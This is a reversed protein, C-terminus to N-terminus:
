GQWQRIVLSEGLSYFGLRLDAKGLVLHLISLASVSPVSVKPGWQFVM